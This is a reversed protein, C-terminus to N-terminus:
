FTSNTFRSPSGLVPHQELYAPPPSEPLKVDVDAGKDTDTTTDDDHYSDDLNFISFGSSGSSRRKHPTSGYLSDSDSERRLSLVLADLEDFTSRHVHRGAAKLQPSDSLDLGSYTCSSTDSFPLSSPRPPFRFHALQAKTQLTENMDPSAAPPPVLVFSSRELFDYLQHSPSHYPDM